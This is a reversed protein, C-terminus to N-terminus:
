NKCVIALHYVCCSHNIHKVGNSSVIRVVKTAITCLSKLNVKKGLEYM